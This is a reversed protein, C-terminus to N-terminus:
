SEVLATHLVQQTEANRPADVLVTLVLNVAHMGRVPIGAADLAQQARAAVRAADLPGNGVHSSRRQYGHGLFNGDADYYREYPATGVVRLRGTEILDNCTGCEQRLWDEISPTGEAFRKLHGIELPGDM